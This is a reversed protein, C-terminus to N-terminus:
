GSGYRRKNRYSAPFLTTGRAPLRAHTDQFNHRCKVSQLSQKWYFPPLKGGVCGWFRMVQYCGEWIGVLVAMFTEGSRTVRAAKAAVTPVATAAGVVRSKVIDTSLSNVFSMTSVTWTEVICAWLTQGIYQSTHMKSLGEHGSPQARKESSIHIIFCSVGWPLLWFLLAYTRGSPGKKKKCHQTSNLSWVRPSDSKNGLHQDSNRTMMGWRSWCHDRLFLGFEWLELGCHLHINAWMSGGPARMGQLSPINRSSWAFSCQNTIVSALPGLLLNKSRPKMLASRTVSWVESCSLLTSVWKSVSTLLRQRPLDKNVWWREFEEVNKSSLHPGTAPLGLGCNETFIFSNFASWRLKETGPGCTVFM